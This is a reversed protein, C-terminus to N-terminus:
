VCAEATTRQTGAVMGVTKSEGQVKCHGPSRHAPPGFHGKATVQPHSYTDGKVISWKGGETPSLARSAFAVPKIAGDEQNQLLVAGLGFSSADASVTTQAKPNYLELNPSKSLEAKITDFAKQQAEGWCWMNKSSLLDRLPQTKDVLHPLYKGLHNVMGKVKDPDAKVGTLHSESVSDTLVFDGSHHSSLQ